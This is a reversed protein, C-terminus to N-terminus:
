EKKEAKPLDQRLPKINIPDDIIDKEGTVIKPTIFIVIESKTTTDARSKFINGLFPVDMLYPIGRSSETIDDRRLGGLIITNGDKVMITSEIFTSNVIPIKAHAATDLTSTKSSIEPRIKMTIFSDENIIPTVILTIGVDIFKIDESTTVNNGTGTTTTIVYPIKDGINIKAEQRDLIMLRPNALVNTKQVQKLAKIQVTYEDKTLTGVGIRGVTGLSSDSSVDSSVPFAGRFNLSKWREEKTESFTKEWDIGYDFKPNITIQLIRAEILVAKNKRDLSQIVPLVEKLREPYGSVFIQNSREDSMISGVAKADLKSRLQTEVDKAKAYNLKVVKTELKTEIEDLLASMEELKKHTDIMIVTGTDEDVIVKGIGSQVSQLATLVYSPKAYKLTRTFIEKKDNFNKGYTQLYEGETMVYIIGNMVNYALQNSIVIVDLADQITVNKLLLTSRGQVSKSTVINLNGELALFKLVDVVNIDRLDLFITKSLGSNPTSSTATASASTLEASPLLSPFSFLAAASFVLIGMFPNRYPKM